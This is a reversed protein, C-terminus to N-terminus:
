PAPAAQAARWNNGARREVWTFYREIAPTVGHSHAVIAHGILEHFLTSCGERDAWVGPTDGAMRNVMTSRNTPLDFSAAVDPAVPLAMDHAIYALANDRRADTHATRGAVEFGLFEVPFNAYGNIVIRMAHRGRARRTVLETLWRLDAPMPGFVPAPFVTVVRRTSVTERMLQVVHDHLVRSRPAARHRAYAAQGDGSLALAGRGDAQDIRQFFTREQATLGNRFDRWAMDRAEINTINLHGATADNRNQISGGAFVISM